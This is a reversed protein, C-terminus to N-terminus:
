RIQLAVTCGAPQSPPEALHPMQKGDEGTLAAIPFHGPIDPSPCVACACHLQCPVETRAGLVRMDRPVVVGCLLQSLAWSSNEREAEEWM